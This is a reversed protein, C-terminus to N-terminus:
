QGVYPAILSSIADMGGDGGTLDGATKVEGHEPPAIANYDMSTKIVELSRMGSTVEGSARDMFDQVSALDDGLQGRAVAEKAIEFLESQLEAGALKESLDRKDAELSAIKTQQAEIHAATKQFLTKAQENVTSM